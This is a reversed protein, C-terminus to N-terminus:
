TDSAISSPDVDYAFRRSWGSVLVDEGLREVSVDLLRHADAMVAAGRGGVAGLAPGGIILPAIVAHVRDVLGVDFLSGLLTGGGEVLVSMVGRRGLEHLLAAPDVHGDEGAPLVVAEAGRATIADRWRQDSRETTAVLTPADEGLVRAAVPTRGRSDVVVRLPQYVSIAAEEAGEARAPRATLLPDDALVTGSGVMIADLLSRQEHVWARAAPGSVWRADGRVAAIRGDLSAAFKVVVLPRGLTRHCIFDAHHLAAQRAGDGVTVRIGAAELERVGGGRVRRDPDIIACHVEAVGAEILARTCPGTRGTVNCPELTVYVAAGRALDGATRLAMVEAHPNGPSQTYGSGVVVGDRVVVAGVAPNSLLSRRARRAQELAAAMFPSLDSM